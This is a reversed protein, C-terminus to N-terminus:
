DGENYAHLPTNEFVVELSAKSSGVSCIMEAGTGTTSNNRQLKAVTSRFWSQPDISRVELPSWFNESAQTLTDEELSLSTSIAQRFANWCGEKDMHKTM